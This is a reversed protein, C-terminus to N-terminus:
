AKKSSLTFTSQLEQVRKLIADALVPQCKELTPNEAKVFLVLGEPEYIGYARNSTIGLRNTLVLGHMNILELGPDSYPIVIPMDAHLTIKRDLDQEPLSNPVLNELKNKSAVERVWRCVADQSDKTVVLIVDIGSAKLAKLIEANFFGPLHTGSCVPTDAGPMFVVLVRGKVKFVDTFIENAQPAPKGDKLAVYKFPLSPFGKATVPATMIKESLSRKDAQLNELDAFNQPILRYQAILKQQEARAVKTRSNHQASMIIPKSLMCPCTSSTTANTALTNSNIHKIPVNTKLMGRIHNSNFRLPM